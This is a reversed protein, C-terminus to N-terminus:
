EVVITRKIIVTVLVAFPVALQFYKVPPLIARNIIIYFLIHLLHHLDITTYLRFRGLFALLIYDYGTCLVIHETGLEFYAM